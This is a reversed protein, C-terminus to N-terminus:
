INTNYEYIINETQLNSLRHSVRKALKEDSDRREDIMWALM